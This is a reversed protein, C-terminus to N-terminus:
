RASIGEPRVLNDGDQAGLLGWPSGWFKGAQFGGSVPTTDEEHGLFAVLLGGAAQSPDIM